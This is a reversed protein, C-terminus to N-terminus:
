NFQSCKLIKLIKKTKKQILVKDRVARAVPRKSRIVNFKKKCELSVVFKGFFSIYKYSISLLTITTYM